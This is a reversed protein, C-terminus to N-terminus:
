TITRITLECDCCAAMLEQDHTIVLICRGDRAAEKLVQAVISMNGGDLGSTPEDFILVSRGSLIGCAISLRQKQGGSLTAPHADKYEYLGLQKLVTRAAELHRPTHDSHLLLEETVSNTFFQTGTDNASYWIHRRRIRPPMKVGEIEITGGSEKWLGSLVLALTTKGAGNHGTVAAIMGATLSFSIHSLIQTKKRRCCIGQACVFPAGTKAATPLAPSVSRTVQRLGYAAREEPTLLEMEAATKEWLIRGGCVYVYRDAIGLLWSLRHEAVILTSGQAKLKHFIRTLQGTGEGDLNATPEDCVYASPRQAYVSAIAARQKEGSSLVDLSRARLHELDFAAIACDTRERIKEASLGYNESAFAVEGALESSFFQSQPDQFVSGIKQGVAWGPMQSVPVSDMLIEGTLTGTYFSPALGNLLRTLTTKGGGSPGTLVVCEKDQITLNIGSIGAECDSYTFSVDRLEIM